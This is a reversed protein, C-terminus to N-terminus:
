ENGGFYLWWRYLDGNIKQEKLEKIKENNEVYIEIQSQVLTDSKLEPYLSVLTIASEASAEEFVKSEHDQFGQVATAVQEEIKTNEEQYMAIRDDIVSLESVTVASIVLAILSFIGIITGSITLTFGFDERKTSRSSFVSPKKESHFIIMGSIIAVISLIFVLIIM